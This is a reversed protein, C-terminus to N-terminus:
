ADLVRAPYGSLTARAQERRISGTAELHCGVGPLPHGFIQVLYGGFCGEIGSYARLIRSCRGSEALIM